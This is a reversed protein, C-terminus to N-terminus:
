PCSISLINIAGTLYRSAHTYTTKREHTDDLNLKIVRINSRFCLVFPLVRIFAATMPLSGNLGDCGLDVVIVNAPSLTARANELTMRRATM